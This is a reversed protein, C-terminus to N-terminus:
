TCTYMLIFHWASLVTSGEISTNKSFSLYREHFFNLESMRMNNISRSLFIANEEQQKKKTEKKIFKM